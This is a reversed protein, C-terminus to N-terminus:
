ANKAWASFASSANEKGSIIGRLMSLLPFKEVHGHLLKMVSDFSSLGESMTKAEGDRAIELGATYNKSCPSFGTAIFDGLGAVTLVTEPRGGLIKFIEQMEAIARTVLIGKENSGWGLGEAMGLALAYVNKFIGGLAVGHVDSSHEVKINTGVFLEKIKKYVEMKETGVVAAALAGRCIEDALMPGSLLAFDTGPPLLEKLIQDTSQNNAVEIGKSPSIVITGEKIFPATEKIAERLVWSPVCFFLFDATPILEQLDRRKRMKAPDKDWFALCFDKAQLTTGIATGIKGAGIFVVNKM